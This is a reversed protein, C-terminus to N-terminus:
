EAKIQEVEVDPNESDGKTKDDSLALEKFAESTVLMVKGLDNLGFSHTTEWESSADRKFIRSIEVSFFDGNGNKSSNKWITAKVCGARITKEPKQNAM